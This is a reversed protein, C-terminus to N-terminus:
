NKCKPLQNKTSPLNLNLIPFSIKQVQSASKKCKLLQNRIQVQFALTKYNFIKQVQFVSKKASPFSIKKQV